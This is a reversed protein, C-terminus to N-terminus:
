EEEAEGRLKEKKRRTSRFTVVNDNHQNILEISHTAMLFQVTTGATNDLVAQVLKRQWKVNLSLEPEDILFLTAQKRALLTNCLLVFLHREGSSLLTPDLKEKGSHITFGKDVDFHVQKDRYFSNITTIFGDVTHYTDELAKLKAQIGDIYPKVVNALISHSGPPAMQIAEILENVPVKVILGYRSYMESKKELMLLHRIFEDKHFPINEQPPSQTIERIVKSFISYVNEQGTNSGRQFQHGVWRGVRNMVKKVIDDSDEDHLTFHDAFFEKTVVMQHGLEHAVSHLRRPPRKLEGQHVRDDSLYYVRIKLEELKDIYDKYPQFEKMSEKGPVSLDDSLRLEVNAITRMDKHVALYLLGGGKYLKRITELVTGDHLEIAFRHFRTQALFTRHGQNDEPSLAHYILKLLTTKGSGNEGYMIFLRSLDLEGVERSPLDYDYKGFLGEISIRSIAHKNGNPKPEPIVSPVTQIPESSPM